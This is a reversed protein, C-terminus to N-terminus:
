AKLKGLKECHWKTTLDEALLYSNQIRRANLMGSIQSCLKALLHQLSSNKLAPSGKHCGDGSVVKMQQRM